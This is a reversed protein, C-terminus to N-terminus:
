PPSGQRSLMVTDLSQSSSVIEVKSENMWRLSAEIDVPNITTYKKINMMPRKPFKTTIKVMIPLKLFSLREAFKNIRLKVIASIRRMMLYLRSGLLFNSSKFKLM